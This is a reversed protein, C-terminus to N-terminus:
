NMTGLIANSHPYSARWTACHFPWIGSSSSSVASGRNRMETPNPKSGEQKEQSQQQSTPPPFVHYLQPTWTMPFTSCLMKCNNTFFFFFLVQAKPQQLFDLSRTMIQHIYHPLHYQFLLSFVTITLIHEGLALYATQDNAQPSFKLKKNEDNPPASHTPTHIHSSSSKCVRVCTRSGHSRAASPLLLATVKSINLSPLQLYCLLSLRGDSYTHLWNAYPPRWRESSINWYSYIVDKIFYVINSVILPFVFITLLLIIFCKWKM